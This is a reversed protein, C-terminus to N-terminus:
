IACIKGGIFESNYVIKALFHCIYNKSIIQFLIISLLSSFAVLILPFAPEIIDQFEIALKKVKSFKMLIYLFKEIKLDM